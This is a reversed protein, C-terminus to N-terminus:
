AGRLQERLRQLAALDIGHTPLTQRLLSVAAVADARIGEREIVPLAALLELTAEDKRDTAILTEAVILRLYAAGAEMGAAEFSSISERYCEIAERLRGQGRQIEGVTAQLNAIAWPTGEDQLLAYAQRCLALGEAYNGESALVEGCNQIVIGTLLSETPPLDARLIGLLQLAEKSRGLDKLSLAHVLRCRWRDQATGHLALLKLVSEVISAVELAEHRSYRITLGFFALRGQFFQGSSTEGLYAAARAMWTEADHLRGLHRTSAAASLCLEALLHRDADTSSDNFLVLVEHAAAAEAAAALPRTNRLRTLRYTLALLVTSQRLFRHSLQPSRSAIPLRFFDNLIEQMMVWHSCRAAWLEMLDLNGKRRSANWARYALEAFIQEREDFESAPWQASSLASYLTSILELSDESEDLLECVGYLVDLDISDTLALADGADAKRLLTAARSLLDQVPQGAPIRRGETAELWGAVSEAFRLSDNM